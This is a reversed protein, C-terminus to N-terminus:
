IKELMVARLTFAVDHLLIQYCICSPFNFSPIELMREHRRRSIYKYRYILIYM